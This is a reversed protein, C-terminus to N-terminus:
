RAIRGSLTATASIVCTQISIHVASCRAATIRSRYRMCDCKILGMSINMASSARLALSTGAFIISQPNVSTSDFDFGARDRGRRLQQKWPTLKHFLFGEQEAHYNHVRKSHKADHPSPPADATCTPRGGRRIRTAGPDIDRSAVRHSEFAGKGTTQTRVLGPPHM